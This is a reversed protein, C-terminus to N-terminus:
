RCPQGFNALVATVDSFNVSGGCDADGPQQGSGPPYVANFNALVATVDGFAVFGNGDADGVCCPPVISCPGFFFRLAAPAGPANLLCVSPGGAHDMIRVDPRLDGNLDPYDIAGPEFPAPPLFYSAAYVGGGFPDTAVYYDARWSGSLTDRILILADDASGDQEFDLVTQAFVPQFFPGVRRLAVTADPVRLTRDGGPTWSRIGGSDDRELAIETEHQFLQGLGDLGRLLHLRPPHASLQVRDLLGDSNEDVLATDITVGVRPVFRFTPEAGTNENVLYLDNGAIPAAIFLPPTRGSFDSAGAAILTPVGRGISSLSLFSFPNGGLTVPDTQEAFLTEVGPVNDPAIAQELSQGPGTVPLVFGGPFVDFWIVPADGTNESSFILRLSNESPRLVARVFSSMGGKTMIQPDAFLFQVFLVEGSEATHAFLVTGSYRDHILLGGPAGLLGAQAASLPYIGASYLARHHISLPLTLSSIPLPEPLSDADDDRYVTLVPPTFNDSSVQAMSLREDETFTVRSIVLSGPLVAFSRTITDDASRMTTEDRQTTDDRSRGEPFMDSGGNYWDYWDAPILIFTNFVQWRHLYFAFKEAICKRLAAIEAPTDVGALLMELGLGCTYGADGLVGSLSEHPLGTGDDKTLAGYLAGMAKFSFADSDREGDCRQIRVTGHWKQFVHATENALTAVLQMLACMRDVASAGPACIDDLLQQNIVIRDKDLGREVRVTGRAKIVDSKIIRGAALMERLKAIADKFTSDASGTANPTSEYCIPSPSPGFPGENSALNMSACSKWAGELIQIADRVKGQEADTLASKGALLPSAAVLWFLVSSALVRFRTHPHTGVCIRSRLM